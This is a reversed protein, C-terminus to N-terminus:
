RYMYEEKSWYLALQLCICVDDKMGGVKGSLAARGKSFVSSAEKFQLSYIHMQDHLKKAMAAPNESLLPKRINLRKERLMVSTLTAMSHKIEETTLIGIRKAGHDIRHRVKPIGRLAREHHEAEFGLNRECMIVIESFQLM